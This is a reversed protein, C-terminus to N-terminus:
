RLDLSEFQSYSTELAEDSPIRHNTRYVLVLLPCQPIRAVVLFELRELTRCERVYCSSTLPIDPALCHVQDMCSRVARQFKQAPTPDSLLHLRYIGRFTEQLSPQSKEQPTSACRPLHFGPCATPDSDSFELM